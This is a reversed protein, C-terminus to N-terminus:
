PPVAKHISSPSIPMMSLMERSISVMCGWPFCSFLSLILSHSKHKSAAAGCTMDIRGNRNRSTQLFQHGFTFKQENACLALHFFIQHGSCPVGNLQNFDGINLAAETRRANLVIHLSSHVNYLTQANGFLQDTLKLRIHYDTCPAIYAERHQLCRLHHANGSYEMFGIGNGTQGGLHQRATHIHHHNAKLFALSSIFLASGHLNGASRHAPVETCVALLSSLCLQANVGLFLQNNGNPTRQTSGAHVFNHCVKNRIGIGVTVEIQNVRCASFAVVGHHCTQIGQTGCAAAAVAIVDTRIDVIHGTHHCSRIQYYATRTCGRQRLQSQHPLGAHQYGRGINGCIM